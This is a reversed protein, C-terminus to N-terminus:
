TGTSKRANLQDRGAHVKKVAKIMRDIDEDSLDYACPEFLLARNEHMDETVPCAIDDYTRETLTFPWADRGIAIRKQFLPLRYLPAVYGTAHPFGEAALADSFLARSVGLAAEDVKMMWVYFNHRCGDRTVPPSLGDLGQLGDTLRQAIRERAEVHADANSLQVRGVSASMETMRLNMGVMNTIPGGDLMDTCNEGHNRILKLRTALDDNDTVCMGGEGTHIHKHFNLSYIGIHGITGTPKGDESGLPSQANDEILYIGHRDALARLEHLKAPHGFLNVCIIAKTKDTVQKEVQGPDICFTEDEIDAFVPIGGYFIPAAVTASMTWPPVIVEDGPSLGIAGCAAYLGSTASNVSVTHKIGFRESWEREFAQVEPGGGFEPGPSGFFGSLCGSQVVRKVAAEEAEGMSKYDAFPANIVPSGGLLALRESGSM